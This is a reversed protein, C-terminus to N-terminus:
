EQGKTFENLLAAFERSKEKYSHQKIKNLDGKYGVKGTKKYELYSNNLFKKIQGVTSAYYGSNTESLTKEIINGGAGGVALIPRLSALYGFIKLSIWGKEEKDKWDMLLLIQSESQIKMIESRSIKDYTKALNELGFDVIEKELWPIKGTYFKIKIDDPNIIKESILEKVAIFLDKPDQKGAYVSGAYIITFKKTLSVGRNIEEEFFGNTITYVNPKKHLKKLKEALPQSVTILADAPLLTKLELKEEFVRRLWPYPYNHNQTWLDRLDALWPLKYKKKLNNAIIHATVPSSSSIIADFKEEDLLSNGIKIAPNRWKKETDPYAFIANYFVFIYDIFSKQSVVGSREKVQNLISKDTKFNMFKFIKRWFWFIDGQYPAEIIRVKREDRFGTPFILLNRPDEKIPVTLITPEWGFDKLYKAIGPIRPSAHFLNAIILVKKM